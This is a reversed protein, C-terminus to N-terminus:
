LSVEKKSLHFPNQLYYVLPNLETYSYLIDDTKSFHSRYRTAIM